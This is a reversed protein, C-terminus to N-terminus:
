KIIIVNIYIYYIITEAASYMIKEFMANNWYKCVDIIRMLSLTIDFSELTQITQKLEILRLFLNNSVLHPPQIQM